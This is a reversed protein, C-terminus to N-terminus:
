KLGTITVKKIKDGIAIKEAILQGSIVQGFVTYGGDLSAAPRNICIYFQSGASNPASSKAMAVAGRNHKLLTNKEDPISYGPGGSGDGRPNAARFSLSRWSGTFSWAM